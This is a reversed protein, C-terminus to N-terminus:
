IRSAGPRPCNSRERPCSQGLRRRCVPERCNVLGEKALGIEPAVERSRRGFGWAGIMMGLFFATGTQVAGRSRSGSSQRSPRFRSASRSSTWLTPQGFWASSVLSGYQFRGVGISSLVRLLGLASLEDVAPGRQAMLSTRRSCDQEPGTSQWVPRNKQERGFTFGFKGRCRQNAWPPPAM